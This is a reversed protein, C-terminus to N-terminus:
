NFLSDGEIIYWKSDVKILVLSVTDEIEDDAFKITYEVEVEKMASIKIDIGAEELSEELEAREDKDATESEVIEYKYSKFKGYEDEAEELDDKLESRFEKKLETKSGYAKKMYNLMEEPYLEMAADVDAECTAKFYLEIASEPEERNITDSGSCGVFAGLMLVGALMVILKKM